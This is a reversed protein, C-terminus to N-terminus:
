EEVFLDNLIDLLGDVFDIDSDLADALPKALSDWDQRISTVFDKVCDVIPGPATVNEGAPMIVTNKLVDSRHKRIDKSNVHKGAAKDQLLNM